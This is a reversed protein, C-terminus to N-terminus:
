RNNFLSVCALVVGWAGYKAPSGLARPLAFQIAYGAVVFWLKAASIFLLGRGAGVPRPAAVQHKGDDSMAQSLM